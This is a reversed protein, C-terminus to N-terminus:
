ETEDEQDLVAGFTEERCQAAYGPDREVLVVNRGMRLAVRGTVGSGGFPDLVWDNKDTHVEIPIEILREPKQTPHTKGRFIETIDTWVNTRRYYESKAPYKASYGAYGRKEELLPINFKYPKKADGLVFYAVEERTFLYATKTGYARKKKWTILSSMQWKTTEEIIPIAKFFPRMGPAGIGGWIYAAAGEICFEQLCTMLNTYLDITQKETLQDWKETM